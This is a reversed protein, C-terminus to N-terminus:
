ILDVPVPISKLEENIKYKAFVFHTHIITLHFSFIHNTFFHQGTKNVHM